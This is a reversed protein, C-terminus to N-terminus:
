VADVAQSFSLILVSTPELSPHRRGPRRRSPTQKGATTSRCVSGRACASHERYLAMHRYVKESWDLKSFTSGGASPIARAHARRVSSDLSGRATGTVLRGLEEPSRHFLPVASAAFEQGMFLLPQHPWCCRLHSGTVCLNIEHHLRVGFPRNRGPRNQHFVFASASRVEDPSPARRDDRLWPQGRSTRPRGTTRM